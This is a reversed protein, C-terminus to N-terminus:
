SARASRRWCRSTPWIGPCRPGAWGSAAPPSPRRASWWWEPPRGTCAACQRVLEVMHARNLQRRGATLVSTGLKVVITRKEPAAKASACVALCDFFYEAESSLPERLYPGIAAFKRILKHHTVKDTTM